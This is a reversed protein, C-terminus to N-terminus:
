LADYAGMEPREWDEAFASLRSRLDSAQGEDIGREALSVSRDGVFTVLVREEERAEEPTELLEVRGDRYIGEVDTGAARLAKDDQVTTPYNEEEILRGALQSAHDSSLLGIELLKAGLLFCTEDDLQEAIPAFIHTLQNSFYTGPYDLHAPKGGRIVERVKAVQAALSDADLRVGYSLMELYAGAVVNLMAIQIGNLTGGIREAEPHDLKHAHNFAEAADSLRGWEFYVVGLNIYAVADDPDLEIVKWLRQEAKPYDGLQLYAGGLKYLADQDEPSLKLLRLLIRKADKWREAEYYADALHKLSLLNKPEYEVAKEFAELALKPQGSQMYIVGLDHHAGSYRPKLKIATKLARRAEGWREEVGYLVGLYCYVIMYDKKLKIAQLYDNEAKEFNRRKDDEKQKTALSAHAYGRMYYATALNLDRYKDEAEALFEIAKTFADASEAWRGLTRYAWGLDFAAVADNPTLHQGRKLRDVVEEIQLRASEAAPPTTQGPTAVSSPKASKTSSTPKRRGAFLGHPLNALVGIDATPSGLGQRLQLEM